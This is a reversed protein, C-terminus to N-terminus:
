PLTTTGQTGTWSWLLELAKPGLSTTPQGKGKNEFGPASTNFGPNKSLCTM